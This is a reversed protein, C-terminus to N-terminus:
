TPAVVRVGVGVTDAGIVIGPREVVDFTVLQRARADLPVGSAARFQVPLRRIEGPPVNAFTFGAGTVYSTVERWGAFYRVSIGSSSLEPAATVTINETRGGDNQVQVAFSWDRGPSIGHSVRQGSGDANYVDDGFVVSDSLRRIQGDTQVRVFTLPASFTATGAVDDVEAALMVCTEVWCDVARGVRAPFITQRVINEGSIEGTASSVVLPAAAGCDKSFSPTADMIAQCFQVNVSPTFGAGTVSVSQDERLDTHPTVTLSRVAFAPASSLVPLVLCIAAVLAVRRLCRVPDRRRADNM